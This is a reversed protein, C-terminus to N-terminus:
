QRLGVDNFFTTIAMRLLFCAVALMLFTLGVITARRSRKVAGLALSVIAVSGFLAMGLAGFSGELYSMISDVSNAIKLDNYCTGPGACGGYSPARVVETPGTDKWLFLGMVLASCVATVATFGYLKRSPRAVAVEETVEDALSPMPEVPLLMMEDLFRAVARLEEFEHRLDVDAQVLAQVRGAEEASLRGHVLAVMEEATVKHESM